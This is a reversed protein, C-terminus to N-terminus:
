RVFVEQAVEEVDNPGVIRLVLGFVRRKYQHYLAELARQEGRRCAALLAEDEPAPRAVVPARPRVISIPEKKTAAQVPHPSSPSPDAAPPQGPREPVWDKPPREGM